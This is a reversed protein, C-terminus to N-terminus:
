QSLKSISWNDPENVLDNIKNKDGGYLKIVELLLKHVKGSELNKKALFYGEKLSKAKGGLMIIPAANLCLADIHSELGKGCLVKLSAAVNKIPNEKETIDNLSYSPNFFPFTKRINASIKRGVVSNKMGIINVYGSIPLEDLYHVGDESSSFVLVDKFGYEKYVELSLKVNPHSLGYVLADIKVPFSLGALAFSMAHPAYFVGGYVQAFKPTTDEISFFSIKKEQLIKVKETFPIKINVGITELFDSSGTKSSTSHSCAKAIYAGSAAAIFCAPTTINITKLGKKGSSAVGVLLEKSPLNVELKPEKLLNDLSLSADILGKIEYVSPGKIMIGNLLMTLLSVRKQLDKERLVVSMAEKAEFEDLSFNINLKYLSEYPEKIKKDKEILHPQIM